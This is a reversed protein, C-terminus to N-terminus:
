QKSFNAKSQEADINVELSKRAESQEVYKLNEGACKSGKYMIDQPPVFCILSFYVPAIILQESFVCEHLERKLAFYTELICYFLSHKNRTFM